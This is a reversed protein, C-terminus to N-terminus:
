NCIENYYVDWINYNNTFCSMPLHQRYYIVKFKWTVIMFWMHSPITSRTEILLFQYVTSSCTANRGMKILTKMYDCQSCCCHIFFPSLLLLYINQLYVCWVYEWKLQVLDKLSGSENAQFPLCHWSVLSKQNVENCICKEVDIEYPYSL